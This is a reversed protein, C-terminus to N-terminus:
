SFRTLNVAFSKRRGAPSLRCSPRQPADFGLPTGDLITAASLGPTQSGASVLLPVWAIVGPPYPPDCFSANEKTLISIKTVPCSQGALQRSASLGSV